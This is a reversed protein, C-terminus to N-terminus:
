AIVRASASGELLLTRAVLADDNRGPVSQRGRTDRRLANEHRIRHPGKWSQVQTGGRVVQKRNQKTKIQTNQM